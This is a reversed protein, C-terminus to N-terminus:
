MNVVNIPNGEIFAEINSKFIGMLRERTEFAAWAIHPTIFCNKATLLPNDKKPPETSLVDVGAGAIEGSNLADALAQEDVVPGRSTNIIFATKKCKKLFEANVTKETEKTLPCHFTIIDSNEALYDLDKAWRFNKRASQDTVHGSLAIINMKYAEAIDAVAGGIKGFGVIGITKGSLETLPKKWFCFDPCASWEGSKVADSHMAVGVALESI